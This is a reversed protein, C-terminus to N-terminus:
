AVADASEHESDVRGLYLQPNRIEGMDKPLNSTILHFAAGAGGVAKCISNFFAFGLIYEEGTGEPFGKWEIGSARCSEIEAFTAMGETACMFAQTDRVVQWNRGAHVAVLIHAMEHVLASARKKEDPSMKWGNFYVVGKHQWSVPGNRRFAEEPNKENKLEDSLPAGRPLSYLVEVRPLFECPVAGFIRAAFSAAAVRRDYSFSSIQTERHRFAPRATAPTRAHVAGPAEM